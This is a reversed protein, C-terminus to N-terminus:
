PLMFATQVRSFLDVAMDLVMFLVVMMGAVTCLTAIDERGAKTLIQCVMAILLGIGAIKLIVDTQM